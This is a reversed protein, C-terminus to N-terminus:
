KKEEKEFIKLYAKLRERYSQEQESSLPVGTSSAWDRIASIVNEGYDNFLVQLMENALNEQFIWYLFRTESIKHKKAIKIANGIIDSFKKVTKSM